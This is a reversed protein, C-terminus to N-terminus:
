LQGHTYLSPFPLTLFIYRVYFQIIETTLLYIHSNVNIFLPSTRTGINQFRFYSFNRHQHFSFKLHNYGKFRIGHFSFLYDKSLERVMWFNIMKALKKQLWILTPTLSPRLKSYQKPKHTMSIYTYTYVRSLIWHSRFTNTRTAWSGIRMAWRCTRCNDIMHLQIETTRNNRKTTRRTSRNVTYFTWGPSSSGCRSSHSRLFVRFRYRQNVNIATEVLLTTCIAQLKQSRIISINNINEFCRYLERM